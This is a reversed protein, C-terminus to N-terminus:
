GIIFHLTTSAINNKRNKESLYPLGLSIPVRAKM